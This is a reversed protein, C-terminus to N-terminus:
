LDSDDIPRNLERRFTVVEVALVALQIVLGVAIIGLVLM